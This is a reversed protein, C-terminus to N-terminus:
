FVPSPGDVDNQSESELEGYLDLPRGRCPKLRNQDVTGQAAGPPTPTADPPCAVGPFAQGQQFNEWCCNSGTRFGLAVLGSSGIGMMPQVM